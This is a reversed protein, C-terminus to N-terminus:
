RHDQMRDPDRYQPVICSFGVLISRFLRMLDHGFNVSNNSRLGINPELTHRDGSELPLDLASLSPRTTISCRNGPLDLVLQEFSTELEVQHDDTHGM